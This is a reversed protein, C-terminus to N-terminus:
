DEHDGGGEGTAQAAPASESGDSGAIVALRAAIEDAEEDLGLERAHRLQITMIETEIGGKLDSIERQIGLRQELDPTAHYRATLEHLRQSFDARAQDMAAVLRATPRSAPDPGTPRFVAVPAEDPSPAQPAHAARVPPDTQAEQAPTGDILFLILASVFILILYLPKTARPIRM